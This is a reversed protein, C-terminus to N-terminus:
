RRGGLEKEMKDIVRCDACMKLRDLSGPEAFMSHGALKALMNGIMKETGLPKACRSAISSRPRTSSARSSPKPRWRCRTAGSPDCGRPLDCCLARMSRMADRHLAAASDGVARSRHDRGGSMRRRVGPVAHLNRPRRRDRRFARGGATRHDVGADACATLSISSRWGSLRASTRRDLPFTAPIRVALAPQLSWVRRSWRRSTRPLSCRSIDQGPLGAGARHHEAFGMQRELAARYQPAEAGTALVAVGTAGYALAGLWVDLGTSAMHQIEVPIVRAPLGKGRRALREISARGTRTM